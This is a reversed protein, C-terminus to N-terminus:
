IESGTEGPHSSLLVRRSGKHSPVWSPSSPVSNSRTLNGSSTTKVGYPHHDSVDMYAIDILTQRTLSPAHGSPGNHQARPSTLLNDGSSSGYSARSRTQGVAPRSPTATDLHPRDRTSTDEM